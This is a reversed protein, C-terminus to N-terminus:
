TTYFNVSFGMFAFSTKESRTVKKRLLRYVMGNKGMM